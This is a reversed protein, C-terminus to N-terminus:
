DDSWSSKPKSSLVIGLSDKILTEFGVINGRADAQLPLTISSDSGPKALTGGTKVSQTTPTDAYFNSVRDANPTDWWSAADTLTLNGRDQVAWSTGGRTITPTHGVIQNPLVEVHVPSVLGICFIGGSGSGGDFRGQSFM